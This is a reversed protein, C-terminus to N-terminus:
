REFVMASSQYKEPLTVKIQCDNDQITVKVSCGSKEFDLLLKKLKKFNKLLDNIGKLDINLKMPQTQMPNFTLFIVSQLTM